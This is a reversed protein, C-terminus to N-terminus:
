EIFSFSFIVAATKFLGAREIEGRYLCLLLVAPDHRHFRVPLRQMPTASHRSELINRSQM